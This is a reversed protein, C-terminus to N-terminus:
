GSWEVGRSVEAFLRAFTPWDHGGDRVLARDDFADELVRLTPALKDRAGWAVHVKPGDHPERSREGLWVWLPEVEMFHRRPNPAKTSRPLLGPRLSALGEREAHTVLPEVSKPLGLFPSILVVGDVLEPRERATWAAGYGGLSVGVLWVREYRPRLPELVAALRPVLNADRYYGFHSDVVSVDCRDAIQEIFGHQEFRAPADGIGPLFVVVCSAAPREVVSSHALPARGNQLAINMFRGLSCGSGLVLAFSVVLARM